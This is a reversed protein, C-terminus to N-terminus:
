TNKRDSVPSSCWRRLLSSFGELELFVIVGGALLLMVTPPEPVADASWALGYDQSSYSNSLDFLNTSYGVQIMYTGDNQLQFYLEQTTSVPSISEAVLQDSGGSLVQYVMLDLEAQAVDVYDGLSSNWTQSRLWDLTVAVYQGAFLQNALQYSNQSGLQATGYAWGVNAVNATFGTYSIGGSTTVYASSTYQSFAANLNMRGAGMSWDLAQTTTIVGNVIQQGNNWGSLKDASNMLVAKIVVSQTAANTISSNFATKATSDLLTAGGAVLPTAFSTGALSYYSISGANTTIPMVISTGPAMLDVGPRTSAGSNYYLTNTGDYWATQLPGTSSFSAVVNYNTPGDLAGVSISNYGSAPGGVSGATGSNGAAAVMTTNPNAVALSDLLGSLIGVGATDSSDGISTSLVDGHSAAYNYATLSQQSVSFSGDSNTSTALAASGLSTSPAIGTNLFYGPAAYGGLLAACWTAHDGPSTVADSSEYTYTLNSINEEPFLNTGVLQSDVVWATTNQGYVGANYFTNAGLLDALNVLNTNSDIGFFDPVSTGQLAQAYLEPSHCGFVLLIAMWASRLFFRWCKFFDQHDVTIM